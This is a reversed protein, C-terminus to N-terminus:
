QELTGAPEMKRITARLMDLRELAAMTGAGDGARVARELALLTEAVKGPNPDNRAFADLITKIELDLEHRIREGDNAALAPELRKPVSEFAARVTAVRGAWALMVDGRRVYEGQLIKWELATKATRSDLNRIRASTLDESGGDGAAPAEPAGNEDASGGGGAASREPPRGGPGARAAGATQPGAAAGTAAPNARAAGVDEATRTLHKRMWGRVRDVDYPGAEPMGDAKWADMRKWQSIAGKSRGLAAALDKATLVQM